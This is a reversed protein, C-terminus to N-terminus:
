AHGIHKHIALIAGSVLGSECGLDSGARSSCLLAASFTPTMYGNWRDQCLFCNWFRIFFVM